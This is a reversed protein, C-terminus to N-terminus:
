FLAVRIEFSNFSNPNPSDTRLRRDSESWYMFPIPKTQTQINFFENFSKGNGGIEM